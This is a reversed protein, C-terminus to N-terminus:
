SSIHSLVYYLFNYNPLNTRKCTFQVIKGKFSVHELGTLKRVSPGTTSPHAGVSPAGHM